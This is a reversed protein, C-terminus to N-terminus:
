QKALALPLAKPIRMDSEPKLNCPTEFYSFSNGTVLAVKGDLRKGSM